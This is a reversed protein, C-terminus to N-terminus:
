FNHADSLHIFIALFSKRGLGQGQPQLSFWTLYDNYINPGRTATAKLGANTLIVHKARGFRIGLVRAARDVIEGLLNTYYTEVKTLRRGQFREGPGFDDDRIKSTGNVVDEGWLPMLVAKLMKEVIPDRLRAAEDAKRERARVEDHSEPVLIEDGQNPRGLVLPFPVIPVEQHPRTTRCALPTEPVVSSELDADEQADEEETDSYEKGKSRAADRQKEKLKKGESWDSGSVDSEDVDGGVTRTGPSRTPPAFTPPVPQATQDDFQEVLTAEVEAESQGRNCQARAEDECTAAGVGVSALTELRTDCTPLNSNEGVETQEDTNTDSEPHM